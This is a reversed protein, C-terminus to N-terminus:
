PVREDPKNSFTGAPRMLANAVVLVVEKAKRLNTVRRDLATRKNRAVEIAVVELVDQQRRLRLGRRASHERVDSIFRKRDVFTDVTTCEDPQRLARREMDIADHDRRAVVLWRRWM